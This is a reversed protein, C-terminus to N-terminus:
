PPAGSGVLLRDDFHVVAEVYPSAVVERVVEVLVAHAVVLEDIDGIALVTFYLPLFRCFRSMRIADLRADHVVDVAEIM